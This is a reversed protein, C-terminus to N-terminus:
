QESELRAIEAKINKEAWDWENCEISVMAELINGERYKTVGFIAESAEDSVVERMSQARKAYWAAKKLDEVTSGKKGARYLYKFCNGGCFQMHKTVEICEIGSADKYHPPHNVMDAKEIRPEFIELFTKPSFGGAFDYKNGVTKRDPIDTRVVGFGDIEIVSCTFDIDEKMQWPSGVTIESM